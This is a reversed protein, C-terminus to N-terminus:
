KSYVFICGIMIIRSFSKMTNSKPLIVNKIFDIHEGSIFGCCSCKLQRMLTEVNINQMKKEKQSPLFPYM